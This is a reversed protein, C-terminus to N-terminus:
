LGIMVTLQTSCICTSRLGSVVKTVDERFSTDNVRIFDETTGVKKTVGRYISIATATSVPNSPFSEKTAINLRFLSKGERVMPQTHPSFDTMKYYHLKGKPTASPKTTCTSASRKGKLASKISSISSTPSVARSSARSGPTHSKSSVTTTSPAPSSSRSSAQSSSKRKSLKSVMPHVARTTGVSPGMTSRRRKTTSPSNAPDEIDDDFTDM